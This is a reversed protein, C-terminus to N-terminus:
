TVGLKKLQDNFEAEYRAIASQFLCQPNWTPEPLHYRDFWLWAACKTPEMARLSALSDIICRIHLTLYKSNDVDHIGETWDINFVKTVILNTEEKVERAVSEFVTEHEEMKGGPTAWIGHSHKSLRRGLLVQGETNYIVASTGVRYMGEAEM